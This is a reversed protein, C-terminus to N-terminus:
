PVSFFKVNIKKFNSKDYYPV